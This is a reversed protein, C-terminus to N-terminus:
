PRRGQPHGRGWTKMIVQEAPRGSRALGVSGRRRRPARGRFTRYAGEKTPLEATDAGRPAFVSLSISGEGMDRELVKIFSNFGIQPSVAVGEGGRCALGFVDGIRM